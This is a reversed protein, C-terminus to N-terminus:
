LQSYRILIPTRTMFVLDVCYLLPDEWSSIASM